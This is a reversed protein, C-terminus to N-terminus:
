ADPLLGRAEHRTSAILETEVMVVDWNFRWELLKQGYSCYQETM